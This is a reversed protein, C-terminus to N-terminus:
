IPIANFVAHLWIWMGIFGLILSVFGSMLFGTWMRERWVIIFLSILPVLLALIWMCTRGITSEVAIVICDPPFPFSPIIHTMSNGHFPPVRGAILRDVGNAALVAALVNVPIFLALLGKWM